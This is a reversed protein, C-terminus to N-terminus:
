ARKKEKLNLVIKEEQKQLLENFSCNLIFDNLKKIPFSPNLSLCDKKINCGLVVGKMNLLKQKYDFHNSFIKDIESNNQFLFNLLDFLSNLQKETYVSFYKRKRWLKESIFVIGNYKKGNLYFQEKKKSIIGKNELCIIISRENFKKNGKIFNENVKNFIIKGNRLIYFSHKSCKDKIDKDKLVVIDKNM